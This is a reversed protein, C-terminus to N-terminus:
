SNKEIAEQSDEGNYALGKTYIEALAASSLNKMLKEIDAKSGHEGKTLRCAWKAIHKDAAVNDNPEFKDAEATRELSELGNIETLSIEGVGHVTIVQQRVHPSAVLDNFSLSM